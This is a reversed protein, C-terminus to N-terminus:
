WGNCRAQVRRYNALTDIKANEAKVARGYAKFYPHVIALIRKSVLARGVEASRVIIPHSFSPIQRSHRLATEMLKKYREMEREDIAVHQKEHALIQGYECSGEGYQSSIYIDMRNYDFLLTVTTAWVKFVPTGDKHSFASECDAKLESEAITIGPSHMHAASLRARRMATIQGTNHDHFIQLPTAASIVQILPRSLDAAGM